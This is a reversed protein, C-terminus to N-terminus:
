HRHQVAGTNKKELLLRCVLHGRSQLESTHEESRMNLEAALKRMSLADIGGADAIDIAATVIQDLTLTPKPGKRTEPLGDWLLRQSAALPNQAAQEESM